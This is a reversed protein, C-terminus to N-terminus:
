DRRQMAQLVQDATLKNLCDMHGLPCERKFCPSCSLNLSVIKAQDSLPPTFQPSSSGYIATLPKGLAAAVHMLGSDNTVVHEVTQMLALAQSLKTRGCLNVCHQTQKGCIAEGLEADKGSGFIWIQKGSAALMKALEAFHETPWRKAPGYEAGPCFAIAPRSDNLQLAQRAATTEAAAVQLRPLGVPRRVEGGAPEALLAFREVMLPYRTKDLQRADNLLGYRLEGVFGTRKPIGAFWPILASKLSNPLVIAWDYQHRFQRAFKYRDILRLQGHGFPSAIGRRVQPMHDVLPLVWAPALVDIRCDPYLAKLRILLTQAMVMDGVWSPAVILIRTM